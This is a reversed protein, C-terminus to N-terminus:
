ERYRESNLNSNGEVNLAQVPNAVAKVGDGLNFEPTQNREMEEFRRMTLHDTINRDFHVYSYYVANAFAM